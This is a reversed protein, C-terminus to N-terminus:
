ARNKRILHIGKLEDYDNLIQAMGQRILDNCGQSNRDDPRGPVAYTLRNLDYMMRATLVTGGKKKSSTIVAADSLMAMTWNRQIVRVNTPLTGPPFQSVLACEKTKIIREALALNRHPYIDSLSSPLVAITPLGFSLALEHVETHTGVALGSIIVPKCINMALANMTRRVAERDKAMMDRTGTVLIKPREQDLLASLDGNIFLKNLEGDEKRYENPNSDNFLLSWEPSGECITKEM